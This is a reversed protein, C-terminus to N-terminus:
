LVGGIKGNDATLFNKAMYGVFATAAVHLLDAWSIAFFDFGPVKMLDALYAILSAFVAVALGKFFDRSDLSFLKSMYLKPNAGALLSIHFVRSAASLRM